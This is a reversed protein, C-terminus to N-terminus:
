LLPYPFYPEEQMGAPFIGSSKLYVKTKYIPKLVTGGGERQL